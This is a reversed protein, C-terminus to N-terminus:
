IFALATGSWASCASVLGCLKHLTVQGGDNSRALRKGVGVELGEDVLDQAAQFVDM